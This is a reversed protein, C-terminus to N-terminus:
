SEQCTSKQRGSWVRTPSFGRNSNRGGPLGRPRKANRRGRRDRANEMTEGRGIEVHADGFQVPPHFFSVRTPVCAQRARLARRRRRGTFRRNIGQIILVSAQETGGFAQEKSSAEGSLRALTTSKCSHRAQESRRLVTVDRQSRM